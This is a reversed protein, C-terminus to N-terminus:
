NWTAGMKKLHEDVRAALTAVERTLQPIPMAYREALQKIRGTLAQSVRDLESQVAASLTVLWKDNVVLTKIETETLKTYQTAVKVELARRADNVQNNAVAEQEMLALYNELLKIEDKSEKDNEVKELQAKVSKSTLKGKDTKAEALLGDEGGQEEDLEEMQHTFADREAELKEIATQEKPFYRSVILTQPILDTNSKGDVIAKWGDSVIM